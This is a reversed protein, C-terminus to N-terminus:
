PRLQNRLSSFAARLKEAAPVGLLERITQYSRGQKPIYGPAIRQAEELYFRAKKPEIFYFRSALQDIRQALPSRYQDLKGVQDALQEFLFCVKFRSDWKEAKDNISVRKTLRHQRYIFSSGEELKFEYGLLMLKLILWGDEDTVLTDDFGGTEELQSRHFLCGSHHFFPTVLFSPLLDKKDGFKSYSLNPELKGEPTLYVTPSYIITQDNAAKLIANYQLALLNKALLDDADLFRILDGQAAKLGENKSFAQGRNRPNHIAVLRFSAEEQIKEIHKRTQDTSHDNVIIWEFDRFTQKELSRYTEFILSGANYSPTIISIM